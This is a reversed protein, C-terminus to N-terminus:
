GNLKPTINTNVLLPWRMHRQPRWPGIKSKSLIMYQSVASYTTHIQIKSLAKSPRRSVIEAKSKLFKTLLSM